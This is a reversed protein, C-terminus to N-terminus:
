KETKQHRQNIILLQIVEEGLNEEQQDALIILMRCTLFTNLSLHKIDNVQCM